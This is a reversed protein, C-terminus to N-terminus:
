SYESKPAAAVSKIVCAEFDFRLCADEIGGGGGQFELKHCAYRRWVWGGRFTSSSAPTGRGYGGGGGKFTFSSAADETRGYIAEVLSLLTM